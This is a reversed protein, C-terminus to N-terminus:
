YSNYIFATNYTGGVASTFNAWVCLNTENNQGLATVITTPSTGFTVLGAPTGQASGAKMSNNGFFVVNAVSENVTMNLSIQVNGTNKFVAIPTACAPYAGAQSNVGIVSANVNKTQGDTSNFWIANTATGPTTPDSNTASQGSLTVSFSKSTTVGIQVPSYAFDAYVIQASVLAFIFAAAMMKIKADM